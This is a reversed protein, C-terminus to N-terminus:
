TGPRDGTARRADPEPLVDMWWGDPDDVVPACTARIGLDDLLPHDGRLSPLRGQKGGDVGGCRYLPSGALMALGLLAGLAGWLVLLSRLGRGAPLRPVLALVVAIVAHPHVIVLHFWQLTIPSIAAVALMAVLHWRAVATLWPVATEGAAAGAARGAGVPRWLRRNAWLPLLVSLLGVSTAAISLMSGLARGREGLLSSFDFSFVSQSASLSPLRVWYGLARLISHPVRWLYTALAPAQGTAAATTSVQLWWPVLSAAALASGALLGGWHPRFHGRWWLLTSAVALILASPHLQAALGLALAHVVSPVFAPATRSRHLTWLHLAAFLFLYGPNWLFGSLYLRAPNLWYLVALPLRATEGLQGTVVRDLLWYAAIQSLLLLVVPARHHPWVELPLGVLLSTLGGPVNGGGSLPNGVPVWEDRFAFLWGRALLNLQDGKVQARAVMAASLGLGTLVAIWTWVTDSRRQATM